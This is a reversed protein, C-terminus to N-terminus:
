KLKGDCSYIGYHKGSSRDGCVKCPIDLLRDGELFISLKSPKRYLYQITNGTGMNASSQCSLNSTPTHYTKIHWSRGYSPSLKTNETHEPIKRCNSRGAECFLKEDDAARLRVCGGFLRGSGACAGRGCWWWLNLSENEDCRLTSSIRSKECQKAQYLIPSSVNKLTLYKPAHSMKYYLVNQLRLVNQIM